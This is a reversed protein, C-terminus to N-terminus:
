PLPEVDFQVMESVLDAKAIANSRDKAQTIMWGTRSGDTKLEPIVDGLKVFLGTQVGEISQAEKLGRINVLKKGSPGAYFRLVVGKKHVKVQDIDDGACFKTWNGVIDYGSVAQVVRTFVYFGGGRCAIEVIQPGNRTLIIESHTPTNDVQAADYAKTVLAIVKIEDELSIAAPYALQTAVRYSGEPKVKDSIALIYHKGNVSFGEVTLELGEIFQEVIFKKQKSNTLAMDFATQFQSQDEVVSVGRSGANDVPKLVVPVGLELAASSFQDFTEVVRFDPQALRLKEFHIRQLSKDLSIEMPKRGLGPLNLTERICLVTSLCIDSAYSVVADIKREKAWSLNGKSDTVDIIRAEDAVKLGEAQELGDSVLVYYGLTKARLIADVQALGAGIILLKKKKM